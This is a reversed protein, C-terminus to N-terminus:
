DLKELAYNKRHFIKKREPPVSLTQGPASPFLCAIDHVLTARGLIGFPACWCGFEAFGMAFV